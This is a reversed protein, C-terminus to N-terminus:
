ENTEDEDRDEQDSEEEEDEVARAKGKDRVLEPEGLETILESSQQQLPGVTMLGRLAAEIKKVSAVDAMVRKMCKQKKGKRPSVVSSEGKQKEGSVSWKTM